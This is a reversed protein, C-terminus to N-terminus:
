SVREQNLLAALQEDDIRSMLPQFPNILHDTLVTQSDQWCFSNVNLFISVHRSLEPLVPTLYIILTRFINIGVSCITQVERLQDPNKAKVWPQEHNIYENTLDAIAMIHRMAQSYRRQEYCAAIAEGKIQAEALLPHSLQESLKGSFLKQIFGACRSAINILKGILDANVRAKFDATNFDIDEVADSLKAAFYYRLQEPNLHKLYHRALIFTGRSKSMKQGNVTLFGHVYVANPLRFHAAKLVAPWFLSHFYVVDKGIFHYLETQSDASWFEDFNLRHKMAYQQFSALYGIPADLWVYFYKDKEGPIEFGFYPQDRSIDWAQLGLHFWERMKNVISEQLHGSQMWEALFLEFKPLDFFLHESEKEIPTEGSVVSIPNKMELPSYTASCVECSDGYQDEAGCRPCTGKVFRDPLFLKAKPDFAQKIVKRQIDGNAKLREYILGTLTKNEESHTSYFNDFQVYFASFDDLHRQRMTNALSEPALGQQKASLMVPTGHADVGCIYYCQHGRMRQFRAWIDTQMYEVLHGLHIDGNAYPLSSTVIIKRAM